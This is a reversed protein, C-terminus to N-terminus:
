VVSKRDLVEHRAIVVFHQSHTGFSGVQMGFGDDYMAEDAQCPSPQGSHHMTAGSSRNKIRWLVRRDDVRVGFDIRSVTEGPLETKPSRFLVRRFEM